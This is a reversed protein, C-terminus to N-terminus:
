AIRKSFLSFTRVAYVFLIALAPWQFWLPGETFMNIGFLFAILAAAM